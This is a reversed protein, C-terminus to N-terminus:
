GSEMATVTGKEDVYSHLLATTFIRDAVHLLMAAHAKTPIKTVEGNAFAASISLPV